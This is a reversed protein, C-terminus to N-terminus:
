FHQIGIPIRVTNIGMSAMNAFDAETIFTDWHRYNIEETKKTIDPALIM